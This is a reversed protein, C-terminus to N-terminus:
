GTPAAAAAPPAPTARLRGLAEASAEAWREFVDRFDARNRSSSRWTITSRDGAVQRDVGRGLLANSLSDRAEIVITAEGADEAYTRTRAARMQDPATVRINLVATRLRMVDPGPSTVVQYGARTYADRFEDEFGSQVLELARAADSDSIRGDVGRVDRNYDRIWDRHFAAETPDIMVKTYGSFDAGPALYVADFNTSNVRVLGDWETSSDQAFAPAAGMAM